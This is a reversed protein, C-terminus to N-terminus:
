IIPLQPKLTCVKLRRVAAIATKFCREVWQQESTKASFQPKSTSPSFVQHGGPEVDWRHSRRSDGTVNDNM